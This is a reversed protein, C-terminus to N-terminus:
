GGAQCGEPPTVQPNFVSTKLLGSFRTGAKWRVNPYGAVSPPITHRWYRNGQRQYPISFHRCIAWRIRLVATTAGRMCDVTQILFARRTPVTTSPATPRTYARCVTWDHYHTSPTPLGKPSGLVPSQDNQKAYQLQDDNKSQLNNNDSFHGHLSCLAAAANPLFKPSSGQFGQVLIKTIKDGIPKKRRSQSSLRM